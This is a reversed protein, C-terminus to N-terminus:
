SGHTGGKAEAMIRRARAVVPLDIMEGDLAELELEATAALDDAFWRTHVGNVRVVRPRLRLV